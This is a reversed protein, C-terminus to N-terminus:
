NGTVPAPFRVVDKLMASMPINLAKNSPAIPLMFWKDYDKKFEGSKMMDIMVTNITAQLATDEKRTMIGYPEVSFKNDILRYNQPNPSANILGLLLVDDNFFIDGKKTALLDFSQLHDKGILTKNVNANSRIYFFTLAPQAMSKATTTGQTYILTSSVPVDEITNIGSDARVAGTISSYFYTISFAVTKRREASNTTSGCEMDAKHELLFPIRTNSNVGVFEYTLAPNQEQLKAFVKMCIDVALGQYHGDVKYSFPISGERVAIRVINDRFEAHAMNTTLAMIAMVAFTRFLTKITKM